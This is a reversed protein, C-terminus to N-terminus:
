KIIGDIFFSLATAYASGIAGFLSIFWYNFLLNIVVNLVALWGLIRNRKFYYIYLAFLMYGGWFVYGLGVWFVYQGATEYRKDILYTFFYPTLISIILLIGLAGIGFLYSMKVIQLKKEEDISSLREMLFPTYFNFFANIIILILSGVTYGLNYIGAKDLSIMKAIFLRDSQNIVFKGVTHLILPLGFLIGKKMLSWEARGKLFGEKKFYIFSISLFITSTILWAYLRGEWGWKKVVVLWITIAVEVLVRVVNFFAYAKAKKQIVLFSLFTEVYITALALFTIVLGWARHTNNLELADDITYYSFYFFLSLLIFPVVPILQVSVFKSAFENQDKTRFYEVSLLGSAVLGVLPILITVYTNFISILGYDFPTLHHSLVPMIFFNIGAGFFGAFTYLSIQKLFKM